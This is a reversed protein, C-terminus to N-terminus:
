KGRSKRSNIRQRKAAAPKKTPTANPVIPEGLFQALLEPPLPANFDDSVIVFGRHMGLPRVARSKGRTSKRAM